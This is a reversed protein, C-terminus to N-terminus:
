PIVSGSTHWRTPWSSPLLEPTSRTRVMSSQALTSWAAASERPRSPGLKEYPYPGIADIYFSLVRRISSELAVIGAERDQPFLWIQLPIGCVIGAHRSAFRAIALANQWSAIPVSQKWHTSRRGDALDIEEQLLGNCVVQYRAPATVVFESTAKDYPHDIAPLWQRVKDPWNNSFFTREGYRNAGIRLGAAPVGHYRVTYTQTAGVRSPATLAIKLRDFQHQFGVRMGGTTVETVVMGRDGSLSALDLVFADLGDRLFKLEITTEGTIQDTDDGLSLRFIYHTVDIGPQRPYTDGVAWPVFMGLTCLLCISRIMPNFSARGLGYGEESEYHGVFRAHLGM